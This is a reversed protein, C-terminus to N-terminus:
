KLLTSSVESAFIQPGILPIKQAELYAQILQPDTVGPVTIQRQHYYVPRGGDEPRVRVQFSQFNFYDFDEFVEHLRGINGLNVLGLGNSIWSSDVEQLYGTRWVDKPAYFAGSPRHLLLLSSNNECIEDPSIHLPTGNSYDLLIKDAVVRKLEGDKSRVLLPDGLNFGVGLMDRGVPSTRAVPKAPRGSYPYPLAHSALAVLTPFGFPNPLREWPKLERNASNGVPASAPKSVPSNVFSGTPAGVTNANSDTSDALKTCSDVPSDALSNVTSAVPISSPSSVPTDSSPSSM